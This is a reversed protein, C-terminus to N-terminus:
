EEYEELSAEEAADNSEKLNEYFENVESLISFESIEERVEERMDEYKPLAIIAIGSAIAITSILEIITMGKQNLFEM